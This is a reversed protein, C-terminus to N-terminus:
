GLWTSEAESFQLSNAVRQSAPDTVRPALKLLLGLDLGAIALQQLPHQRRGGLVLPQLDGSGVDTLGAAAVPM